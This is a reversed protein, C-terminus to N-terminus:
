DTANKAEPLLFRRSIRTKLRERVDRYAAMIHERTGGTDTPDPMPWYEVEVAL